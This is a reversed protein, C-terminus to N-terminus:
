IILPLLEGIISLLVGFNNRLRVLCKILLYANTKKQIKVFTFIFWYYSLEFFRM